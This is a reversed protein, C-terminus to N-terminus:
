LEDKASAAASKISSTTDEVYSTATEVAESAVSGYSAALHALQSNASELAGVLRTGASEMTNPEEGYVATSAKSQINEIADKAGDIYGSEKGYVASSIQASATSYADAAAKTAKEYSGKPSEYIGASAAQVAAHLQDEARQIIDEVSPAESVISAAASSASGYAQNIYSSASSVAAAPYPTEYAAHLKSLVSETFSPQKGVILESVLEQVAEFQPRGNNLVQQVYPTPSGYIQESAKSILNEWNESVQSSLSEVPGTSTGYIASSASISAVSLSSSAASLAANYRSSADDIISQAKGGDASSIVSSASAVVAALSASALSSAQEYQYGAEEVIGNFTGVPTPTPSGYVAGSATSVFASYHDHALGVAEYYRRQADLVFPQLGARPLSATTAPPQVQALQESALSLGQSLRSSAISSIQALPGANSPTPTARVACLKSELEDTAYKLSGSYASEISALLQAHVPASSEAMQGLVQSKAIEYLVKAQDTSDAFASSAGGMLSQVIPTPTGHIVSSAAAVAESYKKSAASSVREGPSLPTGHIVTSAASWALSYQESALSAAKEGVGPTTSAGYIAESVANSVDAYADSAKSALTDLVDQSEDDLIPAQHSNADAAAVGFAPRASPQEEVVIDDNMVSEDDDDFDAEADVAPSPAETSHTEEYADDLTPAAVQESSEDLDFDVNTAEEDPVETEQPKPRAPPAETRTEFDDSVERAAIKWIGVDKLRVLERAAQEAEHMGEDMIDSAVARADSVSKHNMGVNRIENRWEELQAKLAHYKAWDKYTVGDMWAWRMGIEQLGLDRISDLVNLTSNVAATVRRVLEDEFSISWERLAHARDRVSIASTRIDRVLLDSTSKEIEPADEEPMSDALENIRQKISSIQEASVSQLATSLSQGHSKASSAVLASVIEGIREELDEIGKDAALTFKGQWRELDSDIKERAQQAQETPTLTPQAPPQPASTSTVTTTTHIQEQSKTTSSTVPQVTSSSDVDEIVARLRKGERYSALRQGIKVLQPEVQESYLGTVHPWLSSNAYYVASSWTYQARPMVHTTLIGQGTSYAKGIFPKSRAYFPVLHGQYVTLAVNNARQYYPSVVAVSQQVYPDVEALYLQHVKNQATQLRPTVQHQWQEVGYDQAQKLAPAGYKEYGSKAVKSAPTYVRQDFVEVYPRAQDVYPAAYIDYYPTVYPEVHSRAILYPKCVRPSTETLDELHSPCQLFPSVLAYWICLRVVLGVTWRVFSKKRPRELDTRGNTKTTVDTVQGNEKVVM